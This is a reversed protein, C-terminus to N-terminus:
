CLTYTSFKQGGKTLINSFLWNRCSYESIVGKVWESFQVSKETENHIKFVYATSSKHIAIDTLNLWEAVGLYEVKGGLSEQKLKYSWNEVENSHKFNKLDFILLGGDVINESVKELIPNSMWGAKQSYRM